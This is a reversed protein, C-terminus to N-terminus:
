VAADDTLHPAASATALRVEGADDRAHINVRKVFGESPVGAQKETRGSRSVDDVGSQDEKGVVAVVDERGIDIVDCRERPCGAPM